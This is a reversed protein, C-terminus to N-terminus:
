DSLADNVVKFMTRLHNANMLSDVAGGKPRNGGILERSIEFLYVSTLLVVVSVVIRKFYWTFTKM